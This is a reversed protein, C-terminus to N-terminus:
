RMGLEWGWARAPVEGPRRPRPGPKALPPTATGAPAAAFAVLWIALKPREPIGPDPALM